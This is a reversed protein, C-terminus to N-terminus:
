AAVPAKARRRLGAGAMGFGLIMMGWTASEPVGSAFGDIVYQARSGTAGFLVGTIFLDNSELDVFARGTQNRGTLVGLSDREGFASALDPIDFVSNVGTRSRINIRLSSTNNTQAADLGSFLFSFVRVGPTAASGGGAIPMFFTGDKIELYNQNAVFGGINPNSKVVPGSGSSTITGNAGGTGTAATFDPLTAFGPPTATNGTATPLAFTPGTNFTVNRTYVTVAEAPIAAGLALLLSASLLFSKTDAM